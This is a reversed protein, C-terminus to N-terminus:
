REALAKLLCDRFSDRQLDSIFDAKIPAYFTRSKLSDPVKKLDLIRQADKQTTIVAATPCKASAANVTAIDGQTFRHHDPYSFRAAFRYNDSLYHRLLTDDAIASVLIARQSYTFHRDGEPFVPQLEDYRICTFFVPIGSDELGLRRIHDRQQAENLEEPCKTVVVIDADRLRERLDRLRGFPLLRDETVPRGWPTLVINVNAKLKRYQLADDLVIVDAKEQLRRCGDLRDRCVAVTAEPINKKMYFPGFM